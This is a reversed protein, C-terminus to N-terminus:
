RIVLPKLKPCVGSGGRASAALGAEGAADFCSAMDSRLATIVPLENPFLIGLFFAAVILLVEALLGCVFAVGRRNVPRLLFM